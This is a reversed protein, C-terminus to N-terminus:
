LPARADIPTYKSFDLDPSQTKQGSAAETPFNEPPKRLNNEIAPLGTQMQGVAIASVFKQRNRAFLLFDSNM